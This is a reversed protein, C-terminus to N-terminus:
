GKPAVDLRAAIGKLSKKPAAYRDLVLPDHGPVIHAPTDALDHLTQWAKVMAGADFIVPFLRGEEMNAYFHTADSAVVVHGRGTKVRVVQLGMSHGGVYHLTIGPAIEADGDYFAVRGEFVNRVMATIHDVSFSANLTHTCMHPGTAFQMEREQLHFRAKPFQEHGGIHDYHLHTAIVDEIRDAKVGIAALGETVSRELTRGRKKAEKTEFGTDIVITRRGNVAAWVFYDLPMPADDHPDIGVLNTVRTRTPMTGYKVAYLEWIDSSAAM